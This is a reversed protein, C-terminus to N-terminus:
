RDSSDFMTQIRLIFVCSGRRRAAEHDRSSRRAVHDEIRRQMDAKKVEPINLKAVDTRRVRPSDGPAELSQGRKVLLGVDRKVPRGEGEYKKVPRAGGKVKEVALGQAAGRLHHLGEAVEPDGGEVGVGRGGETGVEQGCGPEEEEVVEVM